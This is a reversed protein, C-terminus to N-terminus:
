EESVLAEYRVEHYLDPELSSGTERGTRVLWDWWLANTTVTDDHLPVFRRRLTSM